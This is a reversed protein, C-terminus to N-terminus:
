RGTLRDYSAQAEAIAQDVTREDLLVAGLAEDMISKWSEGYSGFAFPEVHGDSAGEFVVRSMHAERDDQEFYANDGLAERSPLALGSELVWQQAKPSTLLEVLKHASESVDSDAAVSWSVTFVLNGREGTGPHRPIHVTDYEMSPAQDRLFGVMWAGEISVATYENGLCGGTWDQGIDAALVGAGEEVLSTYFEFAERFDDDLVTHGDENIPTWGTALAFAAFRAYDPVVCLGDVDDLEAQIAQLKSRFDYWDDDSSLYDVGADDFIDKNFQVALTNFDKAIGKLDGNYTFAENLAPIIDDAVAQNAESVTAIRGSAFLPYGWFSDVYFIDPATGASLANTINQAFDGEVPEYSARIGAEALEDALVENLLTNVVVINDGGWGSVRVVDEAFVPSACLALGAILSTKIKM